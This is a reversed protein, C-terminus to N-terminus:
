VYLPMELTSKSETNLWQFVQIYFSMHGFSKKMFSALGLEAGMVHHADPTLYSGDTAQIFQLQLTDIELINSFPPSYNSDKITVHLSEPNADDLSLLIQKAKGRKLSRSLIFYCQVLCSLLYTVNM